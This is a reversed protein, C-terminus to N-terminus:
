KKTAKDQTFQAQRLINLTTKRHKKGWKKTNTKAVNSNMM